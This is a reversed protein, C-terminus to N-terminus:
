SLRWSLGSDWVAHILVNQGEKMGGELFLAQYAVDEDARREGQLGYMGTMWNEPLGAAEVWGIEKPKHLLM